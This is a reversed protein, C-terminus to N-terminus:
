EEEFMELQDESIDIPYSVTLQQKFRDQWGQMIHFLITNHTFFAETKYKPWGLDQCLAGIHKLATSATEMERGLQQQLLQKQEKNM